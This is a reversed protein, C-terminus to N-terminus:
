TDSGHEPVSSESQTVGAGDLLGRLAQYLERFAKPPRQQEAERRANRILTRLQQADAPTFRAMLETLAEDDALLRERWRELAHLRATEAKNVGQITEIAHRIAAIERDDLSRMVRGVYQLQRRKGEHDTIRRAERVADALGDPLDIRALADKSLGALTEGLEQLAHMERKRQSKSPRGSDEPLEAHAIRDFQHVHTM